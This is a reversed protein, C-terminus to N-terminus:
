VGGSLSLSVLVWVMFLYLGVLIVSFIKFFISLLRLFLSRHDQWFLAYRWMEYVIYGNILALIPLTIWLSNLNELM